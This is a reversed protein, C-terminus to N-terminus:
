PMDFFESRYGPYWDGTVFEDVPIVDPMPPRRSWPPPRFTAATVDM